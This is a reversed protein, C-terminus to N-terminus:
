SAARSRHARDRRADVDSAQEAESEWEVCLKGLFDEAPPTDETVITPAAIATIGSARAASSCARRAARRARHRRRPQAHGRDPQGQARAEARRELARGRHRRRRSQGGRRCRRRGSAWDGATGDADVQHGGDGGPGTAPKPTVPRRSRGADDQPHPERRRPRRRPAGQSARERPVGVRRRHHGEHRSNSSPETPTARPEPGSVVQCDRRQAPTNVLWNTLMDHGPVGWSVRGSGAGGDEGGGGFRERAAAEVADDDVVDGAGGADVLRHDVVVEGVLQREIALDDAVHQAVDAVRTVAM